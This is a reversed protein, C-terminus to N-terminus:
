NATNPSAAGAPPAGHPGFARREHEEEMLVQFKKLQTPSLVPTLQKLTEARLQEHAARMQEFNPKGGAARAAEFQAKMKAREAELISKVQAQQADTLDLLTTLRELRQAAGPPGGPPPTQALAVTALCSMVWAPISVKM